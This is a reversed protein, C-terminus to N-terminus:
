VQRRPFLQLPAPQQLPQFQYPKPFPIDPSAMLKQGIQGMQDFTGQQQGPQGGGFLPVGAPTSQAGLSAAGLLPPVDSPQQAGTLWAAEQARRNALGPLVQGGARNYQMFANRAGAWDGQRVANGLGSNIWGPGANFTLSTLAARAGTPLQPFAADVSATAKGIESQFRQEATDRNIIEGPHSARTGYGNSHQRYDWTAQPSYGEFGKIANLYPDSLPPTDPM